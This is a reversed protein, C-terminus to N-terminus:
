HHHPFLDPPREPPQRGTGLSMPSVTPSPAPRSLTDGRTRRLRGPGSFPASDAASNRKAVIRHNCDTIEAGGSTAPLKADQVKTTDGQLAWAAVQAAIRRDVADTDLGGGTSPSGGKVPALKPGVPAYLAEIHVSCHRLERYGSCMRAEARDPMTCTAACGFSSMTRCSPRPTPRSTKQPRVAVTRLRTVEEVEETSTGIRIAKAVAATTIDVAM